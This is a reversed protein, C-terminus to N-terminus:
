SHLMDELRVPLNKKVWAEYDGDYDVRKQLTETKSIISEIVNESLFKQRKISDAILNINEQVTGETGRLWNEYDEEEWHLESHMIELSIDRGHKLSENINGRGTVANGVAYM